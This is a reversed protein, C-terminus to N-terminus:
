PCHNTSNGTGSQSPDVAEVYTTVQQGPFLPAGPPPVFEYIVQLVRTDVREHSDGTLSKKPIVYPDIRVFTLPYKLEPHGIVMAYARSSPGFRPIEHEDINVRVRLRRLDGLMLLSRNGPMSATEGVHVSVQLVDADVPARVTLRELDTETQQVTAKAKAVNQKSVEIDEQWPTLQALEAKAQDLRVRTRSFATTSHTLEENSYTGPRSKRLRLYDERADDFNVEAERVKAKAVAVDEPRPSNLLRHLQAEANALEAKRVALDALTQRDDLRFLPAGKKVRQGPEVSVEVVVGNTPSGIDLSDTAPELLGISAVSEGFPTRAPVAPPPKMTHDHQTAAVTRVAWALLGLSLLPLGFIVFFGMAKNVKKKMSPEWEM